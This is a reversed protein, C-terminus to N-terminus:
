VLAERIMHLGAVTAFTRVQEDGGGLRFTRGVEVEPTRLSMAVTRALDGPAPTEVEGVSLVVEAHPQPPTFRAPPPVVTGAFVLGSGPATALRAGVGGLTAKEVTGVTWGRASLGAIVQGEVTEDDIAFVIEGLRRRVERELPEILRDAAATTDAAATLRVHVEMEKILFAMSPNPSDYLEALLEAVTSEGEGWTKLVRSRVVRPGGARSRLRPMVQEDLMPKMEGPVGPMACILKGSHELAVGLAVGTRNPLSEAGLPLDAMRLQNDRLSRGQSSIRQRIWRAHEQDRSMERGTVACIAERTLDDQTPGIGGTLVVADARSLATSIADVLRTLNDGVTVQFHCDFGEEALRRGIHSSNSNTIQGLLLETGVAVVEVIM